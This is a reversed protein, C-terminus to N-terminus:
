HTCQELQIQLKTKIIAIKSLQSFHFRYKTIQTVQCEVFPHSINVHLVVLHRYLRIIVCHAMTLFVVFFQM